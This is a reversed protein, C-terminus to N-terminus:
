GARDVLALLEEAVVDVTAPALLVDYHNTGDVRRVRVRSSLDLAALRGEDYLGQPEDMLGRQAWLLTTPQSAARM